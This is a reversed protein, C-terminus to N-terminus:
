PRGEACLAATDEDWDLLNNLLIRQSSESEMDFGTGFSAKRWMGYAHVVRGGSTWYAELQYDQDM